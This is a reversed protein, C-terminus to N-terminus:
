EDGGRDIGRFEGAVMGGAVAGAKQNRLMAAQRTMDRNQVLEGYLGGDLSHNIEELSLGLVGEGIRAGAKDVSVALEGWRLLGAETTVARWRRIM